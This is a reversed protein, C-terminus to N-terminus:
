DPPPSPNEAIAVDAVAAVAEPRKALSGAKGQFLRGSGGGRGDLLTAVTRGLRALDVTSEEGTALAFFDGREGSATLLVVGDGGTATYARAVRQLFAGDADDFHTDAPGGAAALREVVTAAYREELGRLRREAQRLQELKLEAVAPLEGASTEFLRRLEHITREDNALRRRVRDGAVWGLRCGGHAAEVALLKLTAIEALSAVYIPLACTQVGTM